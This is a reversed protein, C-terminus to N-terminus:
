TNITVPAVEVSILPETKIELPEDAARAPLTDISALALPSSALPLASSKLAPSESVVPPATSTVLPPLVEPPTNDTDAAEPASMPPTTCIELPDAEVPLAPETPM